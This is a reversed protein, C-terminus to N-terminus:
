VHFAKCFLLMAAELLRNASFLLLTSLASGTHTLIHSELHRQSLAAYPCLECRFCKEGEHSKIHLKYTYRDPYLKGCKKCLIPNESTHLKQVHIKLDTKRVFSLALLILICLLFLKMHSCM